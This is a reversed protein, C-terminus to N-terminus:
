FLSNPSNDEEPEIEESQMHNNKDWQFRYNKELKHHKVEEAQGQSGLLGSVINKFYTTEEESLIAINSDDEEPDPWGDPKYSLVKLEIKGGEVQIGSQELHDQIAEELSKHEPDYLNVEKEQTNAGTEQNMSIRTVRVRVRDEVDGDAAADEGTQSDGSQGVAKGKTATDSQLKKILDNVKSILMKEADEKIDEEEEEEDKEKDDGKEGDELIRTEEGTKDVRGGEEEEEPVRFDNKNIDLEDEGTNANLLKDVAEVNEFSKELEDALAMLRAAEDDTVGMNDIGDRYDTLLSKYDKESFEDDDEEEEEEEEEEIQDEVEDEERDSESAPRKPKNAGLESELAIVEEDIAELSDQVSDMIDVLVKALTKPDIGLAIADDISAVSLSDSYKDLVDRLEQSYANGEEDGVSGAKTKDVEEEEESEDKSKKSLLQKFWAAKMGQALKENEEEKREKEMKTQEERYLYIDFQDQTLAPSCLVSKPKVKPPPKLYPHHCIRTTHITLIYSCTTPEDIRSISDGEGEACHFRVEAQRPKGNLDCTSGNVYNHSHYRNLRNKRSDTTANDSWDTESDYIGLVVVDGIIKDNELHFQEINKGYCFQYSWWDKTKRICPATEMPKLLESVGIESAAKEEEMELELEAINPLQCEYQQGYKSTMYVVEQESPENM